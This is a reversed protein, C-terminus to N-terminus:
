AVPAPPTALPLIMTVVTGRGPASDLLLLGGAAEIM